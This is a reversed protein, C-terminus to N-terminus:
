KLNQDRKVVKYFSTMKPQNQEQADAKRKTCAANFAKSMEPFNTTFLDTPISIDYRTVLSFNGGFDRNTYFEKEKIGWNVLFCKKAEQTHAKVISLPEAFSMPVIGHLAMKIYSPILYSMTKEFEYKLSKKLIECIKPFDPAIIDTKLDEPLNDHEIFEKVVLKDPFEPDSALAMSRIKLEPTFPRTERELSHKPCPCVPSNQQLAGDKPISACAQDTLCATCGSRMHVQKTGQHQCQSCHTIKFDM